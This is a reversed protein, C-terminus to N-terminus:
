TTKTALPTAAREVADMEKGREMMGREHAKGYGDMMVDHHEAQHPPWGGAVSPRFPRATSRYVM